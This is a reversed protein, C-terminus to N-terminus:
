ELEIAKYQEQLAVIKKDLEDTRHSAYVVFEEREAQEGAAQSQILLLNIEYKDKEASAIYSMISLLKAAKIDEM